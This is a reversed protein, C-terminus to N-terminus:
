APAGQSGAHRLFNNIDGGYLRIIEQCNKCPDYTNRWVAGALNDEYVDPSIGHRRLAIGCIVEDRPTKMLLRLFPYSEACNGFKTAMIGRERIMPSDNYSWGALKLREGDVLAFRARRCVEKWPWQKYVLLLQVHIDGIQGCWRAYMATLPLFFNRKTAAAPPGMLSLFLGLLDYPSWYPLNEHCYRGLKFVQISLFTTPGRGLRSKANTVYESEARPGTSSLQFDDGGLSLRRVEDRIILLETAVEPAVGYVHPNVVVDDHFEFIVVGDEKNRCERIFVALADLLGGLRIVQDLQSTTIRDNSGGSKATKWGCKVLNLPRNPRTVKAELQGDTATVPKTQGHLILEEMAM